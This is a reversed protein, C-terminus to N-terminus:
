RVEQRDVGKASLAMFFAGRSQLFAGSMMVWLIHVLALNTGIPTTQVVASIAHGTLEVATPM